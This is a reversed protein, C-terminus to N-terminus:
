NTMSYLNTMDQESAVLARGGFQQRFEGAEQSAAHHCYEILQILSKLQVQSAQEFISGDILRCWVHVEWAVACLSGDPSLNLYYKGALSNRNRSNVWNLVDMSAPAEYGIAANIQLYWSSPEASSVNGAVLALGPRADVGFGQYGATSGDLLGFHTCSGPYINEFVTQVNGVVEALQGAADTTQM